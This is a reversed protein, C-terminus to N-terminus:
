EGADLVIPIEGDENKDQNQLIYCFGGGTKPYKAYTKGNQVLDDDDSTFYRNCLVYQAIQLGTCESFKVPVHILKKRNEEPIQSEKLPNKPVATREPIYLNSNYPQKYCYFPFVSDSNLFDADFYEQYYGICTKQVLEIKRNIEDESADYSWFWRVLYIREKHSLCSEIDDKFCNIFSNISAEDDKVQILCDYEDDKCFNSIHKFHKLMDMTQDDTLEFANIGNEDPVGIDEIYSFSDSEDIQQPVPGEEEFDFLAINGDEDAIFWSTSMSHTAPFEKNTKM